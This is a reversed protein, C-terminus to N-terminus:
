EIETVLYKGSYGEKYRGSSSYGTDEFAIQLQKKTDKRVFVDGCACRADLEVKNKKGVIHSFSQKRVIDYRDEMVLYGVEVDQKQMADGFRDAVSFVWYHGWPFEVAETTEPATDFFQTLGEQAIREQLAEKQAPELAKVTEANEYFVKEGVSISTKEKVIRERPSISYISHGNLGLPPCSFYARLALREFVIQINLRHTKGLYNGILIDYEGSRRRAIRYPMHIATENASGELMGRGHWSSTLYKWELPLDFLHHLERVYYRLIPIVMYDLYSGPDIRPTKMLKAKPVDGWFHPEESTRGEQMMAELLTRTDEDMVILNRDTQRQYCTVVKELLLDYHADLACLNFQRDEDDYVAIAGVEDHKSILNYFHVMRLDSMRGIEIETEDMHRYM